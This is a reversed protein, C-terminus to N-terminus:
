EETKGKKKAAKGVLVRRNAVKPLHLPNDGDMDFSGRQILRAIREDRSLVNRHAVLSSASKLSSDLSM